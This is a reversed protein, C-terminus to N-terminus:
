PQEKALEGASTGTTAEQRAFGAPALKLGLPSRPLGVRPPTDHYIIPAVDNPSTPHFLSALYQIQLRGPGLEFQGGGYMGIGRTDCFSYADFLRRLTGFRSPKINLMRPAAPQAEIDAVSHIPADWTIRGRHEALAKDTEGTWAPDEIWV